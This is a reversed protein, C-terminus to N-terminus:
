PESEVPLLEEVGAVDKRVLLVWRDPVTPLDRVVWWSLLNPPLWGTWGWTEGITVSQGLYEGPLPAGERVLVIAPDGSGEYLPYDRITWALGPSPRDRMQIPLADPRGTQARSLTRLSEGLARMGLTNAQPRYLERATPEGFNLAAGASIGAALLILVAAAGAIPFAVERSWGVALMILTLGALGVGMIAAAFYTPFGLFMQFSEPGSVGARLQLYAFAMLAVVAGTFGVALWLSVPQFVKDLLPSIVLAALLTLPIVGWLADAPQRGGYLILVIIAGVAWSALFAELGNGERLKRVLGIGGALSVLPEYALFVVLVTSVALGGSQFWGSAWNGLGVFVGQLSEPFTGMGTSVLLAVVAGVVLGRRWAQSKPVPYVLSEGLTSRRRRLAAFVGAGAGIGTLGTLAAPGSVLALGLFAAAWEIRGGVLLFGAATIGLAALTTGDATRSATWLIPSIAMLFVGLFAPGRGIQRRLLAPTFVLGLGALAPAWRAAAESEGGLTFVLGTVARHAPSESAAPRQASSSAALAYEAERDTLPYLDLRAFRLWAALLVVLVYLVVELSLSPQTESLGSKRSAAVTM